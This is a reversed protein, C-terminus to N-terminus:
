NQIVKIKTVVVIVTNYNNSNNSNNDSNNTKTTTTTSNINDNLNNLKCLHYCQSSNSHSISFEMGVICCYLLVFLVACYLVPNHYNM